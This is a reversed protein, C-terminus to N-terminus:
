HKFLQNQHLQRFHSHLLARLGEDRHEKPVFIRTPYECYGWGPHYPCLTRLSSIARSNVPFSRQVLTYLSRPTGGRSARDGRPDPCPPVFIRTTPYESAIPAPLAHPSM